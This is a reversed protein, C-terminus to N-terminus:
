LLLSTGPLHAIIRGVGLKINVVTVLDQARITVLIAVLVRARVVVVLVVLRCVHVAVVVPAIARALVLVAKVKLPM